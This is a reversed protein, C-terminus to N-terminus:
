LRPGRLFSHFLTLMHGLTGKHKPYGGSEGERLKAELYDYVCGLQENEWPPQRRLFWHDAATRCSIVLWWSSSRPYTEPHHPPTGTGHTQRSRRRPLHTGQFAQRVQPKCGALPTQVCLGLLISSLFTQYLYGVHEKLLSKEDRIEDDKDDDSDGAFYRPGQFDAQRGIGLEELDPLASFIAKALLRWWTDSNTPILDFQLKHPPTIGVLARRRPLTPLFTTTAAAPSTTTTFSTATVVATVTTVVTSVPHLPFIM